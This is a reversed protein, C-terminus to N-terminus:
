PTHAFAPTIEDITM